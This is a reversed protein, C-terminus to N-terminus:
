IHPNDEALDAWFWDDNCFKSTFRAVFNL